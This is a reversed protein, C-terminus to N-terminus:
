MFHAYRATAGAGTPMHKLISAVRRSAKLTIPLRGDLQSQNWNMKSLALICARTIRTERLFLRELLGTLIATTAM